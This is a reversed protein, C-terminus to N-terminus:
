AARRFPFLSEDVCQFSFECSIPQHVERRSPSSLVLAPITRVPFPPLFFSPFSSGAQDGGKNPSFFPSAAMIRATPRAGFLCFLGRTASLFLPFRVDEMSPPRFQAQRVLTMYFFSSAFKRPPHFFFTAKLEAVHFLPSARLSSRLVSCHVHQLFFRRRADKPSLIHATRKVGFLRVQFPSRRTWAHLCSPFPSFFLAWPRRRRAGHSLFLPFGLPHSKARL